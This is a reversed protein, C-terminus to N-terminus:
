LYLIPRFTCYQNTYMVNSTNGYNAYNRSSTYTEDRVTCPTLYSAVTETGWEFANGAMDYINCKVDIGDIAEGTKALSKQLRKERSYDKDESFEQIFLIATDWAYSNVLDSTFTQNKYMNRSLDAAQPQEVFNYVYQGQKCVPISTKTSINTRDTTASSDGAEYRGIYYGGNQSVSKKFGELDKATTNGRDSVVLEQCGDIVNSGQATPTGNTAFTYRNLETTKIVGNEGKIEGVPIWVFQSGATDGHNVDEIVVGKTADGASDSAIKFGEPVIIKNEYKDKITTPNNEDLVTGEERAQEITTPKPKPINSTKEDEVTVNGNKEITVKYGDVYVEIPFSEKTISDPVNVIGEVKDLNEKLKEYNLNGDIGYSGMVALQVKEKATEKQTKEKA